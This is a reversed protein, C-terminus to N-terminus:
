PKKTYNAEISSRGSIVNMYYYTRDDEKTLNTYQSAKAATSDSSNKVFSQAIKANSGCLLEVERAEDWDANGSRLYADAIIYDFHSSNAWTNREAYVDSTYFNIRGSTDGNYNYMFCRDAKGGANGTTGEANYIIRDDPRSAVSILFKGNKNNYFYDRLRTMKRNISAYQEANSNQYKPPTSLAVGDVQSNNLIDQKFDNMKVIRTTGNPSVLKM